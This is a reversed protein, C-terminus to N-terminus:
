QSNNSPQAFYVERYVSTGWSLSLLAALLVIFLVLHPTKM